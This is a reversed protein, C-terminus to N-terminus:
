LSLYTTYLKPSDANVLTRPPTQYVPVSALVLQISAVIYGFGKAVLYSTFEEPFTELLQLDILNLVFLMIQVHLLCLDLLDM